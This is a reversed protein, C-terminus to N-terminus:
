DKRAPPRQGAHVAAAYQDNQLDNLIKVREGVKRAFREPSMRKRHHHKSHHGSRHKSMASSGKSFPQKVTLSGSPSAGSPLSFGPSGSPSDKILDVLVPLMERLEAVWETSELGKVITSIDDPSIPM